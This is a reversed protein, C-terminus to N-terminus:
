SQDSVDQADKDTPINLGPNIENLIRAIGEFNSRTHLDLVLAYTFLVDLKDELELTKFSEKHHVFMAKDEDDMMAAVQEHVAQPWTLGCNILESGAWSVESDNYARNAEDIYSM